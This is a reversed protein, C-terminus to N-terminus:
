AGPKPTQDKRLQKTYERATVREIEVLKELLLCLERQHLLRLNNVNALNNRLSRADLLLNFLNQAKTSQPQITSEAIHYIDGQGLRHVIGSNPKANAFNLYSVLLENAEFILQKVLTERALADSIRKCNDYLLRNFDLILTHLEPVPSLPAIITTIRDDDQHAHDRFKAIQEETYVKPLKYFHLETTTLQPDPFINIEALQAELQEVVRVSIIGDESRSYGDTDNKISYRRHLREAITFAYFLVSNGAIKSFHDTSDFVLLHHDNAQEFRMVESKIFRLRERVAQRLVRLVAKKDPSHNTEDQLQHITDELQHLDLEVYQDIESTKVLHTKTM